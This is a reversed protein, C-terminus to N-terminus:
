GRGHHIHRDDHLIIETKQSAVSDMKIPEKEIKQEDLGRDIKNIFQSATQRIIEMSTQLEKLDRDSSWSGVYGFSYDSTDIGYYSCVTYAVAEAQVEQTIRDSANENGVDRNHLMSHAMEHITTKITQEESMGPRVVIKNTDPQYYGNASGAIAEISIPAQSIEKLTDMFQRYEAVDGTLMHVMSPLEKGSTQSVDFVTAIKFAPIVVERTEKVPQGDAGVVPHGAVDLKVTEQNIKYPAPALIKIGQEGKGVQRDLNQWARYGAVYTADPRQLSILLSNNFSYNHFQAMVRLYQKFADSTCLAKTGDELKKTIERIKDADNMANVGSIKTIGRLM